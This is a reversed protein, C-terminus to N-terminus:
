FDGRQCQSRHPSVCEATATATVTVTVTATTTATVGAATTAAAAAAAAAAALCTPPVVTYAQMVGGFDCVFVVVHACSCM